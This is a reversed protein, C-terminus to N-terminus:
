KLWYKPAVQAFESVGDDMSPQPPMRYSRERDSPARYAATVTLRRTPVYQYTPEKMSHGFSGYSPEMLSHRHITPRDPFSIRPGGEPVHVNAPFREDSHDRAYKHKYDEPAYLDMMDISRQKEQAEAESEPADTTTHVFVQRQAGTSALLISRRALQQIPLCKIFRALTSAM